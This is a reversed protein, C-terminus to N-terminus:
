LIIIMIGLLGFTLSIAVLALTACQPTFGHAILRHHFHGRDAVFPNKGKIIRRFISLNTDYTPLRFILLVSLLCVLSGSEMVLRSSIVGLVYGLFLAGSDGMFIKARPFNRPLFGLIAGLIILSCLLTSPNQFVLSAIGLCLSQGACIGGALGDLGDSLNIANMLYVTWLLSLIGQILTKEGSAYVYVAVALFQGALKQFPSLSITDDFLGVLFIIAGGFLLPFKLENEISSVSLIATFASFFAFGGARPMPIAHIKRASPYDIARVAFSLALSPYFLVYSLM